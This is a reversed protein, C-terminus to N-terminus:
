SSIGSLRPAEFGKLAYTETEQEKWPPDVKIIIIGRVPIAEYGWLM